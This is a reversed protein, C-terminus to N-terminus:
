QAVCNWATRLTKRDCFPEDKDPSSASSLKTSLRDDALEHAALPPFLPALKARVDSSRKTILHMDLVSSCINRSQAGAYKSYRLLANKWPKYTCYPAAELKRADNQKNYESM